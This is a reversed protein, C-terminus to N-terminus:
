VTVPGAFDMYLRLRSHGGPHDLDVRDCVTRIVFLGMGSTPNAAPQRRLHEARLTGGDDVVEVLIGQGEARATLRGGAGGHDLVNTVAENVALVLLEVRKAAMGFATAYDRLIARVAALDTSITLSLELLDSM